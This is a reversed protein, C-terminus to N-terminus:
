ATGHGDSHHARVESAYWGNLDAYRAIPEYDERSLSVYMRDAQAFAGLREARVYFVLYQAELGKASHYANVTLVDDGLGEDGFPGLVTDTEFVEGGGTRHWLLELDEPVILHHFKLWERLVSMEIGGNWHFLHPFRQADVLIALNLTDM